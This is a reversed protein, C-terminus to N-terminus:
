GQGGAVIRWETPATGTVEPTPRLRAHMSRTVHPSELLWAIAQALARRSPRPRYGIAMARDSRYWYYRGLAKAEARTSAPPKKSWRSALEM